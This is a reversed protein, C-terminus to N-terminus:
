QVNELGFCGSDSFNSYTFRSLFRFCAIGDFGAPCAPVAVVPVSQDFGLAPIEVQILYVPFAGSYAGGLIVGHM